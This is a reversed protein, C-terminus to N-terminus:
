FTTLGGMATSLRKMLPPFRTDTIRDTPAQYRGLDFRGCSIAEEHSSPNTHFTIYIKQLADPEIRSALAVMVKSFMVARTNDEDVKDRVVEMLEKWDKL